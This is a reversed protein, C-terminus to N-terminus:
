NFRVARGDKVLYDANKNFDDMVEVDHVYYGYEPLVDEVIKRAEERDKAKVAFDTSPQRYDDCDPLVKVIYDKM